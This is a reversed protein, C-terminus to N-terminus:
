SKGGHDTGLADDSPWHRRVLDPPVPVLRLTGAHRSSRVWLTDAPCVGVLARRAARPAFRVVAPVTEARYLLRLDDPGLLQWMVDEASRAVDPRVALAEEDPMPAADQCAAFRPPELTGVHGVHREWEDLLAATVTMARDRYAGPSDASLEQRCSALVAQVLDRLYDSVASRSAGSSGNSPTGSHLPHARRLTTAHRRLAERVGEAAAQARVAEDMTARHDAARGWESVLRAATARLDELAKPAEALGTQVTWRRCQVRWTWLATVGGLVIAAPIAGLQVLEPVPPHLVAVLLAGVLGTAANATIPARRKEWSPRVPGRLMTLSILLAWLVTTAIGAGVGFPSTAALASVGLGVAPLWPQQPTPSTGGLRNLLVTPCARELDADADIVARIHWGTLDRFGQILGDLTANRALSDTVYRDYGVRTLTPDMGRTKPLAVGQDRLIRSQHGLPEVDPPVQNFLWMWRARLATLASGAEAAAGAASAEGSSGSWLLSSEGPWRAAAIASVARGAREDARHLPSGARLRGGAVDEPGVGHRHESADRPDYEAESAVEVAPPPGPELMRTIAAMLADPFESADPLAGALRLGPNSVGGPVAAALEGARDFVEPIRLLERLRVLGADPENWRAAVTGDRMRWDHGGPDLVWLLGSDQGTLLPEPVDLAVAGDAPRGVAVCMMRRVLASRHLLAFAESHSVLRVTEDAVLLRGTVSTGELLARTCRLAESADLGRLDLERVASWGGAARAAEPSLGGM